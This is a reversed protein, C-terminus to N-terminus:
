RRIYTVDETFTDKQNKRFTWLTRLHSGDVFTYVAHDMHGDDASNMNTAGAFEFKMTNSEPFYVAKMSPQNGAMCYHTMRLQAGDLYYMTVMEVTKGEHQMRFTEMVTKGGATLVVDMEAKAEGAPEAAWHGVLSKLREFGEAGTGSAEVSSSGAVLPAALVAVWLMRTLTKM